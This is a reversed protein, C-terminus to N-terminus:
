QPPPWHAFPRRCTDAPMLHARIHSSSGPVNRVKKENDNRGVGNVVNRDDTLPIDCRRLLCTTPLLHTKSQSREIPCSYYTDNNIIEHIFDIISKTSHNQTRRSFAHQHHTSVLLLLQQLGSHADGQYERDHQSRLCVRKSAKTECGKEKARAATHSMPHTYPTSM